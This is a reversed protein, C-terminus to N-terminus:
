YTCTCIRYTKGFHFYNHAQSLQPHSKFFWKFYVHAHICMHMVPVQFISAAVVPLESHKPAGLTM